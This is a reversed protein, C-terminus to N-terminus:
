RHGGVSHIEVDTGYVRRLNAQNLVSDRSGSTVTGAHFLAVHSAHRAALEVDHTVLLVTLGDERNLRALLKMVGEETAPDLGNTPEDLLLLHPQRILARAIVARQRLGDSLSWYDRKEMGSLDVIALAERLREASPVDGMAVGVLGLRVFERVTTPMNRNWDCRQPVFGIRDRGLGPDLAVRGAKPEILGLIMRVFTTKGVGNTGLLCWFEGARIELSVGDLVRRRGYAFSVADARVMAEGIKRGAKNPAADM